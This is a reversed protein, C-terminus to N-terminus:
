SFVNGHKEVLDLLGDYDVVGEDASIGRADLDPKLFYLSVGRSVAADLPEKFRGAGQSFYVGDHIFGVADGRKALRLTAEFGQATGPSRTMFFLTGKADGM